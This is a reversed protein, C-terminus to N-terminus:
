GHRSRPGELGGTWSAMAVALSNPFM